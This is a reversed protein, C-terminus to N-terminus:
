ARVDAVEQPMDAAVLAAYEQQMEPNRWYDDGSAMAKEIEARRPNRPSPAAEAAEQAAALRAFEEQMRDDNWYAAPDENMVRKIEALRDAASTDPRGAMHEEIHADTELRERLQPLAFIQDGVSLAQDLGADDLGLKGAERIALAEFREWGQEQHKLAFGIAHDIEADNWGQAAFAAAFHKIYPLDRPKAGLKKWRASM